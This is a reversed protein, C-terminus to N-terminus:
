VQVHLSLRDAAASVRDDQAHIRDDLAEQRAEAGPSDVNGRLWTQTNAAMDRKAAARNRGAAIRDRRVAKSLVDSVVKDRQVQRLDMARLRAERSGLVQEREDLARGRRDLMRERADLLRESDDISAIRNEASIDSASELEGNEKVRLGIRTCHCLTCRLGWADDSKEDDM